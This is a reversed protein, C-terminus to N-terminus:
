SKVWKRISENGKSCLTKEHVKFGYIKCWQWHLLAAVKGHSTKKYQNQTLKNCELVIRSCHEDM